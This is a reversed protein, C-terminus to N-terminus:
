LFFVAPRCIVPTSIMKYLAAALRVAKGGDMWGCCCLFHLVSGTFLIVRVREVIDPLGSVKVVYPRFKSSM